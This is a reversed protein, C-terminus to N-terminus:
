KKNIYKLTYISKINVNPEASNHSVLLQYFENWREDTMVGFGLKEADGGSIIKEENLKNVAYALLEDTMEPNDHKILRNAPLPNKLYSKWGEMTAKVFADVIEPHQREYEQLCTLLEGYATFGANSLLLTVPKFGAKQEVIFPESTLIGEQVAKKDSLFPLLSNSYPAKQDDTYGFKGALFGWVSAATTPSIFIKEGKLSEFTYHGSNPHSMLIELDKQFVAAVSVVPLKKAAAAVMVSSAAMFFNVDGGLLLQMGNVHPGGMKIKVDLGYKEYIGEAIAQYYGGHEAQAFWDSSLIIKTLKPSDNIHNATNYKKLFFIIYGLIFVAFFIILVTKVNRQV